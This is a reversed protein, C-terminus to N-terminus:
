KLFHITLKHRKPKVSEQASIGLSRKHGKEARTLQRKLKHRQPKVQDKAIMDVELTERPKYVPSQKQCDTDAPMEDAWQFFKCMDKQRCTFYPRFPNQQSRSVRLTPTEMLECFLQEGDECLNNDPIMCDRIRKRYGHVNDEPCFFPCEKWNLCRFNSLGLQLNSYKLDQLCLGCKSYSM